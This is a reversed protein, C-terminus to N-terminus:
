DTITNLHSLFVYNHEQWAPLLGAEAHGGKVRCPLAAFVLQGTHFTQVGWWQSSIHLPFFFSHFRMQLTCDIGFILVDVRTYMHAGKEADRPNFLLSSCTSSHISANLPIPPIGSQITGWEEGPRYTVASWLMGAPCWWSSDRLVPLWWWPFAMPVFGLLPPGM